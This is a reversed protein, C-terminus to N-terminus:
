AAAAKKVRERKVTAKCSLGRMEMEAMLANQAEADKCAVVVYWGSAEGDEGDSISRKLRAVSWAGEPDDAARDLWKRQQGPTLAAVQLHHGISLKDMRRDAQQIRGSVWAYVKITQESWGESADLVQSAQEGFRDEGYRVFDGIAFQAGREVVRLVKGVRSWDEFTPSGDVHLGNVTATFGSALPVSEVQSVEGLATQGLAISRRPQKASERQSAM